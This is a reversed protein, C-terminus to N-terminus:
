FAFERPFLGSLMICNYINTYTYIYIQIYVYIYIYIYMCIYNRPVVYVCRSLSRQCDRGGAAACAGHGDSRERHCALSFHGGEAGTNCLPTLPSDHLPPCPACSYMSVCPHTGPHTHLGIQICIQTHICMHTHM